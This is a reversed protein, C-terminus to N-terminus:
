RRIRKAPRGTVVQRFADSDASASSRMAVGCCRETEERSQADGALMRRQGCVGVLGGLTRVALGEERIGKHNGESERAQGRTGRGSNGESERGIRAGRATQVACM